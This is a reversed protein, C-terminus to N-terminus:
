HTQFSFGNQLAEELHHCSAQFDRAEELTLDAKLLSLELQATVGTPSTATWSLKWSLISSPDSQAEPIKLASAGAPVQMTWTQTMEMPYGQNLYLPTTRPLTAETWERPLWAPLRVLRTSSQPVQSSLGQWAGQAKWSFDQDLDAVATAEQHQPEFAGTTPSFVGDLLPVISDPGLEKASARLLYDAYGQTQATTQITAPQVLEDPITVKTDLTLRHDAAVAEPLTTLTQIAPDIVLVKRGPDGPPLLGFHCVDDTSDIWLTEDGLKVQSIAHNFAFGPLDDYAQTFRPVLVLSAKYGLTGLMTNLLNAKDKCDGYRNQWVNAAAHPRFSNVGLPISIYRFNTVFRAVAAIKERDTKAQAVLEKVQTTMEPTPLNSERILGGYWSAFAAWDPFTSVLLEPTEESPRLPEKPLAPLDRFEWTYVSGYQTKTIAPDITALSRLKYHLEKKEPVGIEVKFACTPIDTLLPIEDCFHPYPFRKWKRQLEVHLIAGAEVHPLSFIKRPEGGYDGPSSTAGERISDPDLTELQGNPLLVECAEFTLDEDPSFVFDFDGYKKGEATLIQVFSETEETVQNDDGLQYSERRSLTIADDKPYDAPKVPQINKWAEGPQATGFVPPPPSPTVSPAVATPDQDIILKRPATEAVWLAPDETRALARDQYWHNTAAGLADALKTLDTEKGLLDVFLSFSITDGAFHKDDAETALIIRQPAQLAKAFFGSGPFFLLWTSSSCAKALDSFDSPTLRPGPVHFVPTNGQNGGHGFVIFVTDQDKLEDALGLFTKRDNAATELPYSAKFDTKTNALVIVKKPKMEPRDLFTLLHSTQDAFSKESEMDGPLGSLIVVIRNQTFGDDARVSLSFGLILLLGLSLRAFIM